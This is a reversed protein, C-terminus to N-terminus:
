VYDMPDVPRGNVRVEFHVHAGFSNGTNGVYGIVEGQEVMAGRKTGFRSQHAYCTSISKGHNICTYNGYGGTPGMLIVQGAAAARIPTGTPDALDIGAHLRGWRQGFPSTLSGNTPRIFDGSGGRIPGAPIESKARRLQRLEARIQDDTPAGPSVGDDPAAADESTRAKIQRELSAMEDESVREAPREARDRTPTVSVKTLDIVDQRGPPPRRSESRPRQAESRGENARISSATVLGALALVAVLIAHLFVNGPLLSGLRRMSTKDAADRTELTAVRSRM